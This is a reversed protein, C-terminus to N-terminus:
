APRAPLPAPREDDHITRSLSMALLGLRLAREPRGEVHRLWPRWSSDRISRTPTARKPQRENEGGACGRVDDRQRHGVAADQNSSICPMAATTAPSALARRHHLRAKPRFASSQSTRPPLGGTQVPPSPRRRCPRPVGTATLRGADCGPETKPRARDLRCRTTTGMQSCARFFRRRDVKPSAPRRARAPADVMSQLTRLGVSPTSSKM